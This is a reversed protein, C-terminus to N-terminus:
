PRVIMVLYYYSEHEGNIARIRIWYSGTNLPIGHLVPEDKINMSVGLPLPGDCQYNQFITCGDILYIEGIIPLVCYFYKHVMLHINPLEIEM